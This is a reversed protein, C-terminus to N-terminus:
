FRFTVGLAPGSFAIDMDTNNNNDFDYKLYRYALIVDGWGYQYGVGLLAQWTLKSDGAGVDAYYPMIWNGGPKFEGKLGVIGDWVAPKRSLHASPLEPPLPGDLRLDLSADMALYRFGLLINASGSPNEVLNYQGALTWVTAKLNLGANLNLGSGGPVLSALNQTKDGSLDLYIFDTFVGWPGKRAEFSGMFVFNLADILQDADVSLDESGGSRGGAGNKFTVTGDIGPFWGYLTAGFRWDDPNGEVAGASICFALGLAGAVAARTLVQLPSLTKMM